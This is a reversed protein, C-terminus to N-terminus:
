VNKFSDRYFYKYNTLKYYQNVSSACENLAYEPKYGFKEMENALFFEIVKAEDETIREKWKNVNESSVKFMKKGEHSNGGQSIGFSTPNLLNIDFEVGLFDCIEKQTNELNKTLDEFRIVKYRDEGLLHKNIHALKFGIEVRHILSALGDIESEGLTSYYGQFGSKIAAYNDRPDRVLHIFKSTPYLENLEQAYIEISTEKWSFYKKAENEDLCDVYSESLIDLLSKIDRYDNGAAKTKFISKFKNVDFKHLYGRKAIKKELMSFVVSDFRKERESKDDIEKIHHPYFGYMVCLDEPYTQIDSHGDLLNLLLTTGSKRHGCIFLKDTM